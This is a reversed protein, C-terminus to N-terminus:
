SGTSQAVEVQVCFGYVSTGDSAHKGAQYAQARVLDTMCAQQTPYLTAVRSPLIQAPPGATLFVLLLVFM